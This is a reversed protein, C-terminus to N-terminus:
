CGSYGGERYDEEKFLKLKRKRDQRCGFLDRAGAQTLSCHNLFPSTELFLLPLKLSTLKYVSSSYSSVASPEPIQCLLLFWYISVSFQFCFSAKSTPPTSQPCGPLLLRGPICSPVSKPICGTGPSRLVTCPSPAPSPSTAGELLSRLVRPFVAESTVFPLKTLM